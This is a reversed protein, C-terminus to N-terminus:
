ANKSVLKVYTMLRGTASLYVIFAILLWIGLNM